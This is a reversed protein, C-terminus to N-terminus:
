YTRNIHGQKFLLLFLSVPCCNEWGELTKVCLLRRIFDPWRLLIYSGSWLCVMVIRTLCGAGNPSKTVKGSKQFRKSKQIVEVIVGAVQEAPAKSAMTGHVLWGGFCQLRRGELVADWDSIDFNPSYTWCGIWRKELSSLKHQCAELWHHLMDSKMLTCTNDMYGGAVPQFVTVSYQESM